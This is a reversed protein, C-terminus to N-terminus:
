EPNAPLEKWAQDMIWDRRKIIEPLMIIEECKQEHFECAALHLKMLLADSEYRLAYLARAARDAAPNYTSSIHSNRNRERWYRQSAPKNTVVVDGRVMKMFFSHLSRLAYHELSVLEYTGRSDIGNETNDAQLEALYRGSGDLWLVPASETKFDPRHNRVAEVRDSLRTITKVGRRARKRGPSPSDHLPFQDKVWDPKFEVLGNAGHNIECMSLADFPGTAAFLDSLHGNGPRINVFEDVDMSIMFDAERFVRLYHAWRLAQPQYNEADNALAPNPLHTIEGLDELRDLLEATGDSCHNTFIVFDTVGISRHWALWELIFPGEDKMCTVILVRPDVIPWTRGIKPQIKLTDEVIIPAFIQVSSGPQNEDTPRLGRAALTGTLRAMGEAGYVKEHFEIILLRVGTLDLDPNTFIDFEGGEIDCLVVTPKIETMLLNFDASPVQKIEEYARSDPEMSSAWFDRRIYFDLLENTGASAVANQVEVGTVGNLRHTELIMPILAPNAEVTVVREVGEIGAAIASCLGVGAGLELVRDGPQLLSRLMQSEGGEYRNNRMAKEIKPTVIDTVFPVKIGQTVIVSEFFLDSM